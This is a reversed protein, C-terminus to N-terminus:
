GLQLGGLGGFLWFPIETFFWFAREKPGVAKGVM